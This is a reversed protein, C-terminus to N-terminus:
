MAAIRAAWSPKRRSCEVFPLVLLAALELRCTCGVTPQMGDFASSCTPPVELLRGRKPSCPMPTPRSVDVDSIFDRLSTTFCFLSPM